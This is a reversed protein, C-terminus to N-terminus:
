EFVIELKIKQSELIEKEIKKERDRKIRGSYDYKIGFKDLLFKIMYEEDDPYKRDDLNKIIKEPSAQVFDDDNHGALCGNCYNCVCCKGPCPSGAFLSM